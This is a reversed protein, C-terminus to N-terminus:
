ELEEERGQITKYATQIMLEIEEPDSTVCLQRYPCGGFDRCHETEKPWYNNRECEKIQEMLAMADREWESLKAPTLTVPLLRFISSPEVGKKKPVIWGNKANEHLHILIFQIDLFGEFGNAQAVASQGMVQFNPDITFYHPWATTKFELITPVGMMKGLRDLIAVFEDGNEFAMTLEKEGAIDEWPYRTLWQDHFAQIIQRGSEVTRLGKPDEIIPDFAKQFAKVGENIAIEREGKAFLDFLVRLGKHIAAGYVPALESANIPEIKRVYQYYGRRKCSYTTLRSYSGKM